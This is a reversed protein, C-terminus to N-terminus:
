QGSSAPGRRWQQGQPCTAFHSEFGSVTDGALTVVTIPRERDNLPVPKGGKTLVWLVLAGCSSCAKAHPRRGLVPTTRILACAEVFREGTMSTEQHFLSLETHVSLLEARAEGLLKVAEELAGKAVAEGERQGDRSGEKWGDAHGQDYAREHMGDVDHPDSM